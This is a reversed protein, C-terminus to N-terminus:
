SARFETRPVEADQALLAPAALLGGLTLSLAALAKKKM